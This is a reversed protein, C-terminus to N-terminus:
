VKRPNKQNKVFAERRAAVAADSMQRNRAKWASFAARTAANPETDELDARVKAKVRDHLSSTEVEIPPVSALILDIEGPRTAGDPDPPINQNTEPNTIASDPLPRTM